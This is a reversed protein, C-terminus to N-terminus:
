ADVPLRAGSPGPQFPSGGAAKLIGNGPAAQRRAARDQAAAHPGSVAAREAGRVKVKVLEHDALTRDTEACVADTLGHQGILILPKLPHAKGRLFRLQNEALPMTPM